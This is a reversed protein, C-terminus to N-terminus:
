VMFVKAPSCSVAPLRHFGKEVQYRSKSSTSRNNSLISARCKEVARCREQNKKGKALPDAEAESAQKQTAWLRIQIQFLVTEELRNSFLSDGDVNDKDKM